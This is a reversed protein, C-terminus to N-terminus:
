ISAQGATAKLVRVWQVRPPMPVKLDEVSSRGFVESYTVKTMQYEAPVVDPKQRSYDWINQLLLGQPRLLKKVGELFTSSRCDKPVEGGGAFCDVLVIDFSGPSAEVRENVAALADAHELQIRSGFEAESFGLGFYKRAMHIVEENLEVAEVNMLPCSHLLYQPLEGGGLGIMLVRTESKSSCFPTLQKFMTQMYPAHLEGAPDYQCDCDGCDGLCQGVTSGNTAKCNITTEFACEAGFRLRREEIHRGAGSDVKQRLVSVDGHSCVLEGLKPCRTQRFSRCSFLISAWLFWRM